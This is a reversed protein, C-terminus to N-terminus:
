TIMPFHMKKNESMAFHGSAFFFDLKFNTGKERCNISVFKEQLNTKRYRKLCTANSSGINMLSNKVIDVCSKSM